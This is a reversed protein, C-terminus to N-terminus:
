PKMLLGAGREIASRKDSYVVSKAYATLGNVLDYRNEIPRGEEAEHTTLLLPIEKVGILPAVMTRLRSVDLDDKLNIRDARADAIRLLVDKPTQQVYSLALPLWERLLKENANKSHRGVLKGLSEFGWLQRNQCAGDLMCLELGYTSHGVESNWLYVGRALSGDQVAFGPSSRRGPVDIRNVEDSIFRFLDRDSAYLTTNEKTIEVANGFIGPVDFTEFRDISLRVFDADYLTAYTESRVDTLSMDTKNVLIGIDDNKSEELFYNVIDCAMTAKVRHLDNFCGIENTFKGFSWNTFRLTHEGDLRLVIDRGHKADETTECRLRSLNVVGHTSNLKRELTYDYLAQKSIFREDPSRTAFQRALKTDHGTGIAVMPQQDAGNIFGALTTTLSAPLTNTNTTKKSM